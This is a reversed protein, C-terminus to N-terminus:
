LLWFQQKCYQLTNRSYSSNSQSKPSNNNQLPPYRIGDFKQIFEEVINLYDQCVKRIDESCLYDLTTEKENESVNEDFLDLPIFGRTKKYYSSAFGEFKREHYSTIGNKETFSGWRDADWHIHTIKNRKQKFYNAIPNRLFKNLENTYKSRFKEITIKQPHKDIIGKRKDKNEFEYWKIRNKGSFGHYMFDAHVYHIVSSASFVFANLYFGLQEDDNWIEPEQMKKLFYKAEKLKYKATSCNLKLDQDIV